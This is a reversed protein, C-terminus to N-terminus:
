RSWRTEAASTCSSKRRCCGAGRDWNASVGDINCLTATLLAIGSCTIMRLVVDIIFLLQNGTVCYNKTM